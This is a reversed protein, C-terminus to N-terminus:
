AEAFERRDGRMLLVVIGILSGVIVATQMAAIYDTNRAIQQMAELSMMDAWIQATTAGPKAKAVGDLYGMVFLLANYAGHFGAPGAISGAQVAWVGLFTGLVITTSIFIAAFRVDLLFRDFHFIGFAASSVLVALTISTRASLASLMWGRFVVEETGGQIFVVPVIMAVFLLVDPRLVNETGVFMAPMAFGFHMSAVIAALTVILAFLAGYALGNVYQGPRGGRLMGISTLPRREVVRTWFLFHLLILAFSIGLAALGYQVLLADPAMLDTKGAAADMSALVVSPVLAWVFFALFGGIIIVIPHWIRAREGAPGYPMDRTQDYGSM